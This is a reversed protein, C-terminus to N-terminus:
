IRVIEEGKLVINRPSLDDEIGLSAIVVNKSRNKSSSIEAIMSALGGIKSHEEVVLINKHEDLFNSISDKIKQNLDSSSSSLLSIKLVNVKFGKEELDKAAILVNYMIHGCSILLIDGLSQELNKSFYIKEPLGTWERLSNEKDFFDDEYIM